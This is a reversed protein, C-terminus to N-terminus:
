LNRRANRVVAGLIAALEGEEKALTAARGTPGLRCTEAVRLRFLSERAEKLAISCKSIFDRRSEGGRAEELNAGISTGCRLIQPALIRGVGGANMLKDCYHVVDCAFVFARDRLNQGYQPYSPAAM